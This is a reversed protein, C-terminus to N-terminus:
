RADEWRMKGRVSKERREVGNPPEGVIRRRGAKRKEISARRTSYEVFDRYGNDVCGYLDCEGNLRACEGCSKNM